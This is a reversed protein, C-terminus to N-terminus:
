VMEEEGALHTSLPPPHFLSFFSPPPSFPLPPPLLDPSSFPFIPRSHSPPFTTPRQQSYSIIKDMCWTSNFKSSTIFYKVDIDAMNITRDAEVDLYQPTIARHTVQKTQCQSTDPPSLTHKCIAEDVCSLNRAISSLSFM